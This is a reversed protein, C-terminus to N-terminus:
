HKAIYARSFEIDAGFLPYSVNKVYSQTYFQANEFYLPSVGAEDLLLTEAQKFLDLREQDDLSANAQAILEDYQSNSYGGMFKAYGNDTVFLGLFNSPDDYDGFWGMTYFDYQYSDRAEKWTSVDPYVEIDLTVGLKDALQQKYWENINTSLTTQDYVITTLTVDAATGSVGAEQMGEEFLAKLAAPDAALQQDEESLLPDGAYSRFETSGVTIGNPVLGYAPTALGNQFMLNYEERDFALSIAKRVKANQMLGSPGGNAADHQDFSLYTVSPATSVIHDFTGDDVLSQWQDVYDLDTLKLIDLQQSEMLQAQTSTEDVVRLNVQTLIVNDKDWYQDNKTLTMSNELVRDSIVFPGNFVHLTYDNGWNQGSAEAADILDKRIPYMPLMGAKKIFSPDPAALTATFTYDDVVKVQVDDVSGEGNYYAEGGAITTALFGYSFAKDPDLLRLWSDVYNQATVPQGDSWKADERLHFTYTLNDDSVEYSTAGAYATQDVGDADTFVRFLGEQVQSLVQFENANRADNVDLISLDTFALNLVQEDALEDATLSTTAAGEATEQELSAETVTQSSAQSSNDAAGATTTGTTQSGCGALALSLVTALLIRSVRKLKM